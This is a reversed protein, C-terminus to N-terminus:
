GARSYTAAPSTASLVGASKSPQRAKKRLLARQLADDRFPCALVAEIGEDHARNFDEQRPFDLLLIVPAPEITASQLEAQARWAQWAAWGHFLRYQPESSVIPWRDSQWITKLGLSHCVGALGQYDTLSNGHVALWQDAFPSAGNRESQSNLLSWFSEVSEHWYLRAVDALLRGSRPEGECLTGAIVFPRALPDAIMVADIEAQAFEGPRSQLWVVASPTLSEYSSAAKALRWAALLDGTTAFTYVITKARLETLWREHEPM